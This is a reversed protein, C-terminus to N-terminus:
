ACCTIWYARSFDAIPRPLQYASNPVPRAAERTRLALARLPRRTVSSTGPVAYAVDTGPEEYSARLSIAPGYETGGCTFSAAGGEAETEGSFFYRHQRYLTRSTLVLCATTWYSPASLRLTPAVSPKYRVSRLPPTPCNSFLLLDVAGQYLDVGFDQHVDSRSRANPPSESFEPLTM